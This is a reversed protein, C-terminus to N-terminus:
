AARPKDQPVSTCTASATPTKSSPFNKKLIQPRKVVNKRLHSSYLSWMPSFNPYMENSPFWFSKSFPSSIGFLPNQPIFVIM